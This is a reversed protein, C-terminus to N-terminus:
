RSSPGRPVPARIDWRLAAIRLAFGVDIAAVMAATRQVDLALLVLLLAAAILAAIANLEGRRFIEPPTATLVDRLLAGGVATLVGVLLQAPVTVGADHARLAGAVAFSGVALADFLRILGLLRPGPGHALVAILLAVGAAAPLYLANTLAVPTGAQLLLDRLLGGGLGTALGLGIVGAVDFDERNRAVLAGSAAGAVVGALDVVSFATSVDLAM